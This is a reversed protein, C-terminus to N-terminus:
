IVPASALRDRKSTEIYTKEKQERTSRRTLSTTRDTLVAAEKHNIYGDGNPINGAKKWTETELTYFTNADAGTQKTYLLNQVETVDRCDAAVIPAVELAVSPLYEPMDVTQGVQGAWVVPAALLLVLCM